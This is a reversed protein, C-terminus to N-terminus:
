PILIGNVMSVFILVAPIGVIVDFPYLLAKIVVSEYHCVTEIFANNGFSRPFHESPLLEERTETPRAKMPTAPTAFSLIGNIKVGGVPM